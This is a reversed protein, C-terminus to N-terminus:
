NYSPQPEPPRKTVRCHCERHRCGTLVSTNPFCVGTLVLSTGDDLMGEQIWFPSVRTPTSKQPSCPPFPQGPAPLCLLCNQKDWCPDEAKSEWSHFAPLTCIDSKIKRKCGQKQLQRDQMLHVFCLLYKGIDKILALFVWYSGTIGCVGSADNRSRIQMQTKRVDVTVAVNQVHEKKTECIFIM